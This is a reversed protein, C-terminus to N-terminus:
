IAVLITLKKSDTTDAEPQFGAGMWEITEANKQVDKPPVISGLLWSILVM